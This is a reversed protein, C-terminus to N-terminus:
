TIPRAVVRVGDRPRLTVLPEPEIRQGSVLELRYRQLVTAVILEAEMLAFANGICQWPGGSFPFYAFRHHASPDAFRDPDFAEPNPWFDPHRHTVYASLTIDAGREIAFGDIEDAQAVSRGIGWVPPYLRMTEQIVQRLYGLRPLDELTPTKGGLERAIEERLRHEVAAHTSLLYFCWALANATTEHGAVFM